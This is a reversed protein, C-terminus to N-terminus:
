YSERSFADELNHAQDLFNSVGRGATGWAWCSPLWMSTLRCLSIWPNRVCTDARQSLLRQVTPRRPKVWVPASASRTDRGRHVCVGHSQVGPMATYSPRGWARGTQRGQGCVPAYARLPGARTSTQFGTVQLFTMVECYLAGWVSHRLIVQSHHSLHLSLSLLQDPTPGANRVVEWPLPCGQGSSCVCQADLSHSDHWRESGHKPLPQVVRVRQTFTATCVYVFLRYLRGPRNTGPWSAM